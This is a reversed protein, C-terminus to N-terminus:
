GEETDTREHLPEDFARAAPAARHPCRRAPDVPAGDVDLQWGWQDCRVCERIAAARADKDTPVAGKAELAAIVDRPASTTDLGLLTTIRAWENARLWRDTPTPTPTPTTM